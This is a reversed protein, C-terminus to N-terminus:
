GANSGRAALTAHMPVLQFPANELGVDPCAVTYFNIKIIHIKFISLFLIRFIYWAHYNLHLDNRQM